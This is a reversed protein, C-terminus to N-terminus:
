PVLELGMGVLTGPVASPPETNPRRGGTHSVRPSNSVGPKPKVWEQDNGVLRLQKPFSSTSLSKEREM